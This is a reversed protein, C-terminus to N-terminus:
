CASASRWWAALEDAVHTALQVAALQIFRHGTEFRKFTTDVVHFRFGFAVADTLLFGEILLKSVQLGIIFNALLQSRQFGFHFLVVM